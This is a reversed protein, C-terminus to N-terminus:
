LRAVVERCRRAITRFDDSILPHDEVELWYGIAAAEVGGMSADEVPPPALTRDVLNGSQPAFLMPTMDYVPTLGELRGGQSYAAMNGHHMDTNGILQGFREIWRVREVDERALLGHEALREATAAPIGRSELVRHAVHEAVLLDAVRRGVPDTGPPSFKVLVPTMPGGEDGRTALFKPQEGAASPAPTDWQLVNAAMMPYRTSRQAAPILDGPPLKSQERYLALAEDGVILNGPQNWGYTALYRLTDEDSWQLIDRPFDDQPLQRPLLRGLFGSPRLDDLFYPIADLLGDQELGVELGETWFGQKRLPHLVCLRRPPHDASAAEYVALRSPLGDIFRRAGYRTNRAAM